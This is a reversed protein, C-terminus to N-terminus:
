KARAMRRREAATLTATYKDSAAVLEAFAFASAAGEAEPDDSIVSYRVAARRLRLLAREIRAHHKQARTQAPRRM